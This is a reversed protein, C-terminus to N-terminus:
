EGRAERLKKLDILDQDRGAAKKMEVLREYSCFRVKHGFVTDEVAATELDVYELDPSVLQLIDLRGYTTMLVFNGGLALVDPDQPEPLEERDFEDMGLMSADLDTVLAALRGLNQRDPAPVIDLDKTTRSFGHATVAFGGIVIFRVSAKELAELLPEGKFPLEENL